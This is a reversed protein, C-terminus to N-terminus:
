FLPFLTKIVDTTQPIILKIKYKTKIGKNLILPASIEKNNDLNPYVRVRFYKAFVEPNLSLMKKLFLNIIKIGKENIM